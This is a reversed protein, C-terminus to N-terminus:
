FNCESNMHCDRCSKEYTGIPNLECKKEKKIKEEDDNGLHSADDYLQPNTYKPCIKCTSKCNELVDEILFESKELSL